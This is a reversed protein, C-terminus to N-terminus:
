WTCQLLSLMLLGAVKKDWLFLLSMKFFCVKLGKLLALRRFIVPYLTNPYSAVSIVKYIWFM